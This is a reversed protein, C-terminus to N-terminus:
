KEIEKIEVVVKHPLCIISQGAYKIKGTNVCIKDPCNADPLFVKKEQIQLINRGNVGTITYTIEENLSFTELIEGDVKVVVQQTDIEREKLFVLLFLGALLFVSILIFDAKRKKLFHFVRNEKM